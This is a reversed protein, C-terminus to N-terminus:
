CAGVLQELEQYVQDPIRVPSRAAGPLHVWGKKRHGGVNVAVLPRFAENDIGDYGHQIISRYMEDSAVLVLPERANRLHNKLRPADLLRFAVDLDEGYFGNQDHHVEGAHIVVRLRLHRPREAPPIRSNRAVLLKALAPILRSVLFTKPFEDAPRLLVLVGDGRDIIPDCSHDEIGVLGFAEAMLRYVEEHLEGKVPNTRQTSGEIDVALISRHVPPSVSRTPREASPIAAWPSSRSMLPSFAAPRRPPAQRLDREKQPPSEGAPGRQGPRRLVRCLRTEVEDETIQSSVQDALHLIDSFLDPLSEEGDPGIPTPPQTTM